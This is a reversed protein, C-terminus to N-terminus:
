GAEEASVLVEASKAFRFGGYLTMVRGNAKDYQSRFSNEGSYLADFPPNTQYIFNAQGSLWFRGEASHPFM